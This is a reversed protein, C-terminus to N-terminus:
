YEQVLLTMAFLLVFYIPAAVTYTELRGYTAAITSVLSINKLQTILRM